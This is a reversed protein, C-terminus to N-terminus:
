ACAKLAGPQEAHEGPRVLAACVEDLGRLLCIAGGFGMYWWRRRMTITM